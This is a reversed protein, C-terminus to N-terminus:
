FWFWGSTRSTWCGNEKKSAPRAGPLVSGSGSGSGDAAASPLRHSPLLRLGQIVQCRRPSPFRRPLHPTQSGRLLSTSVRFSHRQGSCWGGRPQASVWVRPGAARGAGGASVAEKEFMSPRREKRSAGTPSPQTAPSMSAKGGRPRKEMAGAEAGGQPSGLAAAAVERSLEAERRRRAPRRAEPLAARLPPPVLQTRPRRGRCSGSTTSTLPPRRLRSPLPAGLITCQGDSVSRQSGVGWLHQSHHAQM